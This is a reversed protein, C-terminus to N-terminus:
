GRVRYANSSLKLTADFSVPTRASVQRLEADIRLRIPHDGDRTPLVSVQVQRLRPEHRVIARRLKEALQMRDAPTQLGLGHTEPLGFTLISDAARPYSSFGARNDARRTNLLAELDRALAARLQSALPAPRSTGPALDDDMLRDLLSPM